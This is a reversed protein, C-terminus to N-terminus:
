TSSDDPSMSTLQSRARGIRVTERYVIYLGSSIVIAAGLLTIADPLEGWLFYGLLTAWILASYEFPTIVAAPGLRFAHTVCMVGVSGFTGALAFLGLDVLNPTVWFFPALLIGTLSMGLQPYLVLAAPNETNKFARTTIMLLAYFVVSVLVVLAAWQFVGPGPRLMVLVGVFGIGVALWRHLGVSERLLPMSLATIFIPAAFTIAIADVLKMQSLAWFFSLTLGLVLLYRGVHVAPRKTRLRRLGGGRLAFLCLLPLGFWSRLAAVQVVPYDAALWKITADMVAFGAIGILMLAIGLTPHDTNEAIDTM